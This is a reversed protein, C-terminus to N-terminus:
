EEVEEYVAKQMWYQHWMMAPIMASWNSSSPNELYNQFTQELYKRCEIRFVDVSNRDMPEHTAGFSAVQEQRIENINM